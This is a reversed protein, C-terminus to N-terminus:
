QLQRSNVIIQCMEYDEKDQFYAILKLYFEEDYFHPHSSNFKVIGQVTLAFYDVDPPFDDVPASEYGLQCVPTDKYKNLFNVLNIQLNIFDNNESLMAKNLNYIEDFEPNRQGTPNKNLLDRIITQNKKIEDLNLKVKDKLLDITKQVLDKM